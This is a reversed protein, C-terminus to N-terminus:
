FTNKRIEEANKVKKKHHSSEFCLHDKAAKSLSAIKYEYFGRHCKDRIKCIPFAHLLKSPPLIFLFTFAISAYDLSAMNVYYYKYFGTSNEHSFLICLFIHDWPSAAKEKTLQEVQAM